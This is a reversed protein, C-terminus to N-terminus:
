GDRLQCCGDKRDVGLYLMSAIEFAAVATVSATTPFSGTLLFALVDFARQKVDYGLVISM